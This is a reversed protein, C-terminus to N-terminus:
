NEEGIREAERVMDLYKQAVAVVGNLAKVSEERGEKTDLLDRHVLVLHQKLSFDLAKAAANILEGLEKASFPEQEPEEKKPPQPKSDNIIKKAADIDGSKIAEVAAPRKEEPTNRIEQIVAKPAKIKGARVDDRFGPSVEDAANLGDVYHESRKVTEKGVGFNEAVVDATRVKLDGIHENQASLYKGSEKDREAHNGISLKQAKYAEGILITRDADNLNRRGLQNRCMWVIAAWKDPFTMQKVRFPIEPHKQIIKWRNHGDIITNNWVVLPERVEGDAVINEELRQFEDASL